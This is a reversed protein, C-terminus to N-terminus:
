LLLIALNDLLCPVHLYGSNGHSINGLRCAMNGGPLKLLHLARKLEPGKGDEQDALHRLHLQELKEHQRSGKVLQFVM